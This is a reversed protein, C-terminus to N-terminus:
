QKLATPHLLPCDTFVLTNRCFEAPPSLPALIVKFELDEQRWKGTSSHYAWVVLGLTNHTIQSSNITPSLVAQLQKYNAIM